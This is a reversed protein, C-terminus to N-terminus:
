STARQCALAPASGSPFSLPVDGFRRKAIRLLLEVKGRAEGRAEAKALRKAVADEVNEQIISRKIREGEIHADYFMKEKKSLAAYEIESLATQLQSGKAKMRLAELTQDDRAALFVLWRDLQSLGAKDIDVTKRVKPLEIFVFELPTETPALEAGTKSERLEYTSVPRQHGRFLSFNLVFIVLTPNLEAYNESSQLQGAYIRAGYYVARQILSRHAVNQVEINVWRMGRETQVKALVDLRVSKGDSELMPPLESNEFKLDIIEIELLYNLFEKLIPKNKETGFVRKFIIDVRPDTYKRRHKSGESRSIKVPNKAARIM